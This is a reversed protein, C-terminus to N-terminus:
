FESITKFYNVSVCSIQFVTAVGTQLGLGARDGCFEVKVADMGELGESM